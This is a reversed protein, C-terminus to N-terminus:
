GKEEIGFYAKSTQIDAEMQKKLQNVSDFCTEPRIFHYVEVDLIQGYLDYEYYHFLHTEVVVTKEKTVTPKTGINTIGEFARGGIWTRTAYVGNPPLVKERSPIMNLTPIGLTRALAMGHVVKEKIGYPRGLLRAGEDVHGMAIEKKIRSSSIDEERDQEKELVKVCFGYQKGLKELLCTDGRRKHGFRFDDGTVVLGVNLQGVLVHRVFEEPELRCINENFPYEILFDVGMHELIDRKEDPTTLVKQQKGTLVMGPPSSFTFVVSIMDKEKCAMQILKQHGRHVGDFKGLTVATKKRIGFDTTNFFCKM